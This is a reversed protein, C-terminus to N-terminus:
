STYPTPWFAEKKVRNEKQQWQKAVRESGKPLETCEGKPEYVHVEMGSLNRLLLNELCENMRLPKKGIKKLTSM